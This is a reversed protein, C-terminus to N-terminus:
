ANEARERRFESMACTLNSYPAWNSEPELKKEIKKKKSKEIKKTATHHADTVLFILRNCRLFMDETPGTCQFFLRPLSDFGPINVKSAVSGDQQM